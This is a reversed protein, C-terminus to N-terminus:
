KRRRDNRLDVALIMLSGVTGYVLFGKVFSSAQVGTKPAHLIKDTGMVKSHSSEKSAADVKEKRHPDMGDLPLGDEGILESNDPRVSSRSHDKDSVLSPKQVPNEKPKPEIPTPSVAPPTAKGGPDPRVPSTTSPSPTNQQKEGVKLTFSGIKEEYNTYNAKLEFAYAGPLLTKGKKVILKGNQIEFFENPENLEIRAKDVATNDESDIAEIKESLITESPVEGILDPLELKIKSFTKKVVPRYIFEANDVTNVNPDTIGGFTSTLRIIGWNQSGTILRTTVIKNQGNISKVVLDGTRLFNDPSDIIKIIVPYKLNKVSTPVDKSPNSALYKNVVVSGVVTNAETDGKISDLWVWSTYSYVMELSIPTSRIGNVSVVLNSTSSTPRSGQKPETTIGYQDFESAPIEKSTGDQYNIKVILGDLDITEKEYRYLYEKQKPEQVIEISQAKSPDFEPSREAFIQWQSFNVISIVLCLIWLLSKTRKHKVQEEM